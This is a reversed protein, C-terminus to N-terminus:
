DGFKGQKLAFRTVHLITSPNQELYLRRINLFFLGGLIAPAIIIHTIAALLPSYFPLLWGLLMMHTEGALWGKELGQSAMWALALGLLTLDYILVHPSFLLIGLILIPGRNALSAKRSWAWVVALGVLGMVMFQFIRATEPSSVFGGVLAYTTTDYFFGFLPTLKIAIMSLQAKYALWIGPGFVLLSILGMGLASVAAGGLTRWRRSALLAVPILVALNPKFVMLGLLLGGIFPARELLLLGGGMLIASLFGNQGRILNQFTAPFALAAWLTLPHPFIRRLIFLYGGLTLLGWLILSNLFPFLAFPLAILLYIPPYWFSRPQFDKGHM